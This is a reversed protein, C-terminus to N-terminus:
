RGDHLQQRKSGSGFPQQQEHLPRQEDDQHQRPERDEVAETGVPILRLPLPDSRAGYRCCGQPDDGRDAEGDVDGVEVAVVFGISRKAAHHDQQGPEVERREHHQEASYDIGLGLSLRTLIRGLTGRPCHAPTPSM